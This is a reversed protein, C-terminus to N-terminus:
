KYLEAFPHFHSMSVDLHIFIIATVVFFFLYTVWMGIGARKLQKWDYLMFFLAAAIFVTTTVM